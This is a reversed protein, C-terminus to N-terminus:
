MLRIGPELAHIASAIDALAHAGLVRGAVFLETLQRRTSDFGVASAFRAVTEDDHEALLHV